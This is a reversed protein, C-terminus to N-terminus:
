STKHSESRGHRTAIRDSTFSIHIQLLQEQSVSGPSILTLGLSVWIMEVSTIAWGIENGSTGTVEKELSLSKASCAKSKMGPNVPAGFCRFDLRLKGRMTQWKLKIIQWLLILTMPGAQLPLNIRTAQESCQRCHFSSSLLTMMFESPCMCDAGIWISLPFAKHSGAPFWSFIIVHRYLTLLLVGGGPFSSFSPCDRFLTQPKLSSGIGPCKRRM